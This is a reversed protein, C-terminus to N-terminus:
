TFAPADREGNQKKWDEVFRQVLKIFENDLLTRRAKKQCLLTITRSLDDSLPLIRIAHSRAAHDLALGPLIGVGLGQEVLALTFSVDLSAIDASVVTEATRYVDWLASDPDASESSPVLPYRATIESLSVIEQRALEHSESVVAYYPDQYLPFCDLEAPGQITSFCCTLTHDTMSRVGDIYYPITELKLSIEPRKHALEAVLGPLWQTTVSSFVGLQICNEQFSRATRYLREEQEEIGEMIDLLERGAETLTVGRKTRHFLKVGLDNELNNIIYWLSPHSYGLRGAAKNLSGCRATTIIPLYKGM